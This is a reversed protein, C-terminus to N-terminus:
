TGPPRVSDGPAGDHKGVAENALGLRNATERDAPYGVAASGLCGLWARRRGRLRLGEPRPDISGQSKARATEVAASEWGCYNSVDRVQAM